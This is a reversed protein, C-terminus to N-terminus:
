PPSRPPSRNDAQAYDMSVPIRSPNRARRFGQERERKFRHFGFMGEFGFVRCDFSRNCQVKPSGPAIPSRDNGIPVTCRNEQARFKSALIGKPLEGTQNFPNFRSAGRAHGQIGLRIRRTNGTSARTRGLQFRYVTVLNGRLWAGCPEGLPAKEKGYNVLGHAGPQGAERGERKGSGEKGVWGGKALIGGDSVRHGIRGPHSMPHGISPMRWVSIRSEPNPIQSHHTQFIPCIGAHDAANRQPPGYVNTPITDLSKRM